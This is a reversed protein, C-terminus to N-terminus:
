RWFAWWPHTESEDVSWAGVSLDVVTLVIEPQIEGGGQYRITTGAYGPHTGALEIRYGHYDFQGHRWAHENGGGMLRNATVSATLAETRSTDALAKALVVVGERAEAAGQEASTDSSSVYLALFAVSVGVGLLLGLSVGTMRKRPKTAPM